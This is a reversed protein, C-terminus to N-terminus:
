FHYLNVNAIDGYTILISWIICLLMFIDHTLLNKIMLKDLSQEDRGCIFDCKSCVLSMSRKWWFLSYFTLLIELVASHWVTYYLYRILIHRVFMIYYIEFTVKINYCSNYPRRELLCSVAPSSRSSCQQLLQGGSTGCFCAVRHVFVRIGIVIISPLFFYEFPFFKNGM